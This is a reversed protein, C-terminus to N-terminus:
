ETPHGKLFLPLGAVMLIVQDAQAAIRQNLWGQRDRFRRALANDARHRLRGRQRGSCRRPPRTWPRSSGISSPM